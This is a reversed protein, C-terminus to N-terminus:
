VPTRPFIFGQNAGLWDIRLKQRVSSNKQSGAAGSIATPGSWHCGGLMSHQRTGCRRPCVVPPTTDRRTARHTSRPRSPVRRSAVPRSPVRSTVPRSLVRRCRRRRRRASMLGRRPQPRPCTSSHLRRPCGAVSQPPPIVLRLWPLGRSAIAAGSAPQAHSPLRQSRLSPAPCPPPPIM